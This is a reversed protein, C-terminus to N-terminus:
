AVLATLLMANFFKIYTPLDLDFPKSHLFDKIFEQESAFGLLIIIEKIEEPNLNSDKFIADICTTIM